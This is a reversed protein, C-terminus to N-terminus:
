DEEWEWELGSQRDACSSLCDCTFGYGSKEAHINLTDREGRIRIRLEVCGTEAVFIDAMADALGKKPLMALYTAFILMRVFQM